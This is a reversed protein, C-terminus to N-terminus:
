EWGAHRVWCAKLPPWRGIIMSRQTFHGFEHALISKFEGLNLTNILGLGIELNKQSPFILNIVSIDYFVCANVSNSLYVKHPRPAKADDAVQYIFRFLEPEDKETIELEESRNKRTFFFLGKFMFVGLFGLLVATIFSLVGDKGGSFTNAFLKFSTYVFWSSLFIYFLIFLLLTATALGVHKKYSRAPATLDAPVAAPGKPYFPHSM